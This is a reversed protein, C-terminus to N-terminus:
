IPLPTTSWPLKNYCVTAWSNNKNAINKNATLLDKDIHSIRTALGLTTEDLDEAPVSERAWGIEYVKHSVIFDDTLLFRTALQPGISCSWM